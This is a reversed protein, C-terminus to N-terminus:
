EPLEHDFWAYVGGQETTKRVVMDPRHNIGSYHSILSKRLINPDKPQTGRHILRGHWILVDGKAAIFQRPISEHRRIEAEIAPTVFREAYKEWRNVQAPGERRGREEETLFRQVKQQRLLPWKHSGPVYEFPGSEPSIDDLAIWVAAYWSNVFDPNLYDDQHWDRQTSIWGTLCLHLMMPEGILHALMDMLPPYLAVARLAPLHLYPTEIPWGAPDPYAARREIYPDLVADPIFKPLILVGDRRWALQAATLQSEDVGKRDLPPLLHDPPNAALDAFRPVRDPRPPLGLLDTLRDIM